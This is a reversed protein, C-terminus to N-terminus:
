VKGLKKRKKEVAATEEAMIFDGQRLLTTNTTSM